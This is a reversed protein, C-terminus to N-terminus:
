QSGLDSARRMWDAEESATMKHTNKIIINILEIGAVIQREMVPTVLTPIGIGLLHASLVASVVGVPILIM